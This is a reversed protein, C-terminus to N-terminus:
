VRAPRRRGTRERDRGRVALRGPDGTDVIFPEAEGGQKLRGLREPNRAGLRHPFGRSALEDAVLQGTYGTAGLLGIRRSTIM